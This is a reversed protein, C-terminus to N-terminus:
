SYKQILKDLIGVLENVCSELDGVLQTNLDSQGNQINLMIQHGLDHVQKHIPEISKFDRDNGFEKMGENYYFKGFACTVHNPLEIYNKMYDNVMLRRMFAIHAVKAAIFSGAKSHFKINTYKTELKNLSLAMDNFTKFLGSIKEHVIASDDSMEKLNGGIQHIVANQEESAAMIENISQNLDLSADYINRFSEYSSDIGSRQENLMKTIVEMKSTVTDISKQMENVTAGIQKTSNSTKEALNRVEDAVVAFGRGAEGARAAEIAANLALLNTQDSIENIVAIIMAIQGANDNLIHVENNLDSISEEINDSLNRAKTMVTLGENTIDVTNNSKESITRTHVVINETATLMEGQVTNISQSIEDSQNVVDQTEMLAQTVFLGHKGTTAISDLTSLYDNETNGMYNNLDSFCQKMEPYKNITKEDIRVSLNNNNNSFSSLIESTSVLAKDHFHYVIFYMIIISFGMLADLVVPLNFFIILPMFILSIVTVVLYIHKVKM